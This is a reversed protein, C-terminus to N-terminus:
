DHGFIQNIIGAFERLMEREKLRVEIEVRRAARCDENACDDPFRIAAYGATVAHQLLYDRHRELAPDTLLFDLVVGARARSFWPNAPGRALSRDIRDTHGSIEIVDIYDRIEPVNRVEDLYLPVVQRLLEKGSEPLVTSSGEFQLDDSSIVLAGTMTDIRVSSFAKLDANNTLSTVIQQWERVGAAREVLSENLNLLISATALVFVMVLGAMLDSYSAWYSEGDSAQTPDNSQRAVPRLLIM